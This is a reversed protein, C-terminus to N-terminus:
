TKAFDPIKFKILKKIKKAISLIKIKSDRDGIMNSSTFNIFFPSSTIRLLFSLYLSLRILIKSLINFFFFNIFSIFVQINRLSKLM